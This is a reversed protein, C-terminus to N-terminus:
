ALSARLCPKSWSRWLCRSSAIRLSRLVRRWVQRSMSSALLMTAWCIARSKESSDPARYMATGPFFMRSRVVTQPGAGGSSNKILMSSQQPSRRPFLWRTGRPAEAVRQRWVGGRSSVLERHMGTATWPSFRPSKCRRRSLASNESLPSWSAWVRASVMPNARALRLSRSVSLCCDMRSMRVWSKLRRYMSSVRSRSIKRAWRVSRGKPIIM